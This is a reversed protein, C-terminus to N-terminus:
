AHWQDGLEAADLGLAVVWRYGYEQYVQELYTFKVM